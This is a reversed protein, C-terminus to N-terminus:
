SQKQGVVVRFEITVAISRKAKAVEDAAEEIVGRVEGRAGPELQRTSEHFSM